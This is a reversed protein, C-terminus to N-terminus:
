SSAVRVHKGGGEEWRSSGIFKVQKGIVMCQCLEGLSLMEEIKIATGKAFCNQSFKDFSDM